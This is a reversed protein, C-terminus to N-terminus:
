AEASFTRPVGAPESQGNETYSRNATVVWPVTTMLNQYLANNLSALRSLAFLKERSKGAAIPLRGDELLLTQRAVTREYEAADLGVLAHHKADELRLLEDLIGDM